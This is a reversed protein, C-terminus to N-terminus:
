HENKLHTKLQKGSIWVFHNSFYRLDVGKGRGHSNVDECWQQGLYSRRFHKKLFDPNTMIKAENPIIDANGTKLTWHTKGAGVLECGREILNQFGKKTYKHKVNFEIM